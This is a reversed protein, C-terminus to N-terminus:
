RWRRRTSILALRHMYQPRRMLNELRTAVWADIYPRTSPKRFGERVDCRM